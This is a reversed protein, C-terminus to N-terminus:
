RRLVNKAVDADVLAGVVLALWSIRSDINPPRGQTLIVFYGDARHSSNMVEVVRDGQTLSTTTSYRNNKLQKKTAISLM